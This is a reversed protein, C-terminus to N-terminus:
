FFLHKSCVSSQEGLFPQHCMAFHKHAHSTMLVNDSMLAFSDTQIAMVLLFSEHHFFVALINLYVSDFELIFVTLM